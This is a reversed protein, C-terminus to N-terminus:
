RVGEAATSPQLLPCIPKLPCGKLFSGGSVYFQGRVHMRPRDKCKGTCAREGDGYRNATVERFRIFM